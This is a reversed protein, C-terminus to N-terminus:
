VYLSSLSPYPSFGHFATNQSVHADQLQPQQSLSQSLSPSLFPSLFLSSPIPPESPFLSISSIPTEVPLGGVEKSFQGVQYFFPSL